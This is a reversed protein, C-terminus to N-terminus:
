VKTLVLHPIDQEKSSLTPKFRLASNPFEDSFKRDATNYFNRLIFGGFVLPSVSSSVPIRCNAYQGLTLHSYPHHSEVYRRRDANFDFRIPCPVINRNVIDAYIEDSLYSDQSNQFHELDPSPFYALCHETVEGHKFRYRLCLLAGDLLKVNFCKAKSLSDYIESYSINKLASTLAENDKVTIEFINKHDGYTSPFYQENSLSLKVMAIILSQVEQLTDRSDM